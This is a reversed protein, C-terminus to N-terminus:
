YNERNIPLSGNGGVYDTNEGYGANDPHPKSVEVPHNIVDPQYLVVELSRICLGLDKVIGTPGLLYCLRSHVRILDNDIEELAKKEQETM